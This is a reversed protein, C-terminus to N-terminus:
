DQKGDRPEVLGWYAPQQTNVSCFDELLKLELAGARGEPAGCGICERLWPAARYLNSAM